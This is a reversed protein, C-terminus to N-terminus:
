RSRSRARPQLSECQRLSTFNFSCRAELCARQCLDVQPNTLSDAVLEALLLLPLEEALASAVLAPLVDPEREVLVARQVIVAAGDDGRAVLEM